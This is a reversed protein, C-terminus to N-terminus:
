RRGGSTKDRTPSLVLNSFGDVAAIWGGPLWTTASLEVIVAPGAIRDGPALRARDYLAASRWRGEAFIRHPGIQAQGGNGRRLRAAVQRPRPTRAVAQVRLTVVEVHRGRDAYGYSREHLAHFQAIVDAGWDVRLEFGQGEYRLDAARTLSPTVGEQQFSTRAQAELGEFLMRIQAAGPALM